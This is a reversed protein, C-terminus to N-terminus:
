YTVLVISVIIIDPPVGYRQSARELLERHTQWYAVGAQIREAELFRSRYQQWNRPTSVPPPVVLKSIQPVLRAKGLTRRVWLRDLGHQQAIEDALAMAEPRGAYAPGSGEILPALQDQVRKLRPKKVSSAQAALAGCLLLAALLLSLSPRKSM